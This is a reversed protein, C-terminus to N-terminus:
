FRCGRRVKSACGPRALWPPLATTSGPALRFSRLCRGNSDVVQARSIGWGPATRVFALGKLFVLSASGPSVSFTLYTPPGTWGMIKRLAAVLEVANRAAQARNPHWDAGYGISDNQVSLSVHSVGIGKGTEIAVINELHRRLKSLADIGTPYNDSMM